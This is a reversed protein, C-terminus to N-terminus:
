EQESLGGFATWPSGSLMIIDAPRSAVLVFDVEQGVLGDAANKIQRRSFRFRRGEDTEIIGYGIDDRYKTIQGQMVSERDHKAAPCAAATDRQPVLNICRAPNRQEGRFLTSQGFIKEARTLFIRAHELPFLGPRRVKM